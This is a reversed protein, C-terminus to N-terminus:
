LWMTTTIPVSQVRVKMLDYLKFGVSCGLPGIEQFSWLHNDGPMSLSTTLYLVRDTLPRPVGVSTKMKLIM